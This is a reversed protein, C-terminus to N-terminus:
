GTQIRGRPREGRARTSRSNQRSRVSCTAERLMRAAVTGLLLGPARRRGHSGVAILTARKAEAQKLLVAVPDGDV